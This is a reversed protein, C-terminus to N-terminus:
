KILDAGEKGQNNQNKIHKKDIKKINNSSLILKNL